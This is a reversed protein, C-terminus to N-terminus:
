TTTEGFLSSAARPIHDRFAFLAELVPEVEYPSSARLDERMSMLWGDALEFDWQRDFTMLWSIMAQDVVATAVFPDKAYVLFGRDFDALEFRVRELGLDDISGDDPPAKGIHVPSTRAPIPTLGLWWHENQNTKRTHWQLSLLRVEADRWTGHMVGNIGGGGGRRFLPMALTRRSDFSDKRSFTLGLAAARAAWRDSGLIKDFLGM